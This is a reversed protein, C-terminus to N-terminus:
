KGGCELLKAAELAVKRLVPPLPAYGKPLVGQGETAIYEIFKKLALCKNEPYGTRWVLMFTQGAIPYANKSAKSYVFSEAVKTWDDLPSPPNEINFAATITERSPAVFEGYPNEILAVPLNNEIAYAWEIYGISYPTRKITETVGPNGQQGVGRGKRDVPWEITKGVLSRPWLGHSAKYLFTTFIETTGSADSRHVAIIERHPLKDAIEPNLAKIAPDDWYRIEGLYIKALVTGNLRLQYGKIEPVNYSVVVAGLVVPFQMIKGRLKQYFKEALPPDSCAFDVLHNIIDTQGKGSGGGSYQITVSPCKEHFGEAWQNLAPWVFTSGSGSLIASPCGGAGATSSGAGGAQAATSSTTAQPAGHGGSLLFGAAIVAIIIAVGAAVLKADM